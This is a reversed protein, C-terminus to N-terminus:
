RPQRVPLKMALGSACSRPQPRPTETSGHTTTYVSQCSTSSPPWRRNRIWM